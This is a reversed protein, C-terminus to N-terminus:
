GMPSGAEGDMQMRAWLYYTAVRLDKCRQKILAEALQAVRETDAGSLKNVEERM